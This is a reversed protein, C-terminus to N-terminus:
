AASKLRKRLDAIYKRTQRAEYQGDEDSPGVSELFSRAEMCLKTLDDVKGCAHVLLTTTNAKPFRKELQIQYKMTFIPSKDCGASINSDGELPVRKEIWSKPLNLDM